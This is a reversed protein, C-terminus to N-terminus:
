REQISCNQASVLAPPRGQGDDRVTVRLHCIYVTFWLFYSM